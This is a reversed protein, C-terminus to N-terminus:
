GVRQEKSEVRYFSGRRWFCLSSALGRYWELQSLNLVWKEVANWM